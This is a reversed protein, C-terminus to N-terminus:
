GNKVGKCKPRKDIILFGGINRVSYKVRKMYMKKVAQMIVISKVIGIITM